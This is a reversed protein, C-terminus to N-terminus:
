GILRDIEEQPLSSFRNAERRKERWDPDFERLTDTGPMFLGEEKERIVHPLSDAMKPASPQWFDVGKM